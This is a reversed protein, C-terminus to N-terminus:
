EGIATRALAAPDATDRGRRLEQLDWDAEVAARVTNDTDPGSPAANIASVVSGAGAEAASCHGVGRGPGGAAATLLLAVMASGCWCTLKVRM